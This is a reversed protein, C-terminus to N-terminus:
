IATATIAGTDSVAIKGGTGNPNSVETWPVEKVTVDDTEFIHTPTTGRRMTLRWPYLLLRGPKLAGKAYDKFPHHTNSSGKRTLM